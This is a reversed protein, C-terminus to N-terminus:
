NLHFTNTFVFFHIKFFFFTTLMINVQILEKFYDVKPQLITVFPDFKKPYFNDLTLHYLFFLLCFLIM